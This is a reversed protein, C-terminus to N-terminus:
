IILRKLATANLLKNNLKCIEQIFREISDQIAKKVESLLIKESWDIKETVLGTGDFKKRRQSIYLWEDKRSFLLDVLNAQVLMIATENNCKLTLVNEKLQQLFFLIDENGIQGNTCNEKPCFGVCHDNITIHLFGYITDNSQDFETPDTSSIDDTIVWEIHM